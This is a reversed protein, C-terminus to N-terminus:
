KPRNQVQASGILRRMAERDADSIDDQPLGGPQGTKAQGEGRGEQAAQAPASKGGLAQKALDLGLLDNVKGKTGTWLEQTERSQGIARLHGFLTREGLDVTLGFWVFAALCVVSVFLTVLRFV